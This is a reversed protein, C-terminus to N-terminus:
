ARREDDPTGPLLEGVHHDALMADVRDLVARTLARGRESSLDLVAGATIMRLLAGLATFRYDEWCRDLDYGRVGNAVLAAHYTEVMRREIARRQEKPLCFAALYAVDAVGRGLLAVQWDLITLPAAGEHAGFLLNDLRFDGHVITRPPTVLRRRYFAVNAVLRGAVAQLHEPVVDRFKELFPGWLRRCAQEFEAPQIPVLWTMDMLRPNEWWAAQFRALHTVALYVDEDSCGAMNDGVRAQEFDELLLISIGADRDLDAYYLRPVPLGPVGAIQTYFGWEREYVGLTNLGARVGPDASPLKAVLSDPAGDEAADYGLRLRLVRGTFGRGESLVESHISTVSTQRITGTRRLAETVWVATLDGPETPISLTSM